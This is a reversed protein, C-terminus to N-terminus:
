FTAIPNIPSGNGAEVPIPAATFLFEWRDQRVAEAGIAELDLNDFLQMGLAVITLEHVPLLVGDVGSPSVETPMNTQTM